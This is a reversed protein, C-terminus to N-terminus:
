AEWDDYKAWTELERIREKLDAIEKDKDEDVQHLPELWESYEAYVLDDKIQQATMIYGGVWGSRPDDGKIRVSYQKPFDENSDDPPLRKAISVWRYLTEKM